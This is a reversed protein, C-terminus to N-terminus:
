SHDECEAILRYLDVILALADTNAAGVVVVQDDLAIKNGSNVGLHFHAAALKYEDVLTRVPSKHLVQLALLREDPAIRRLETFFVYPFCTRYLEADTLHGDALSHIHPEPLPVAM